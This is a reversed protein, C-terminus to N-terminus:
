GAAPDSAPGPGGRHPHAPPRPGAAPFVASDPRAPFYLITSPLRSLSPPGLKDGSYFLVGRRVEKIEALLKIAHGYTPPEEMLQAELCDWFAKHMIEKVKRELSYLFPPATVESLLFSSM